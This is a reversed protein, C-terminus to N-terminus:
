LAQQLKRVERFLTKSEGEDSLKILYPTPKGDEIVAFSFHRGPPENGKSDGITMQKFVPTNLLVRYTQHARMIFRGNKQLNPAENSKSITVNLKFTGRGGEKWTTGNWSYLNVRTSSFISEEGEEGTDVDRQQFKDSVEGGEQEKTADGLGEEESETRGDDEEDKAPAGFAVKGGGGWKADGVPAAFSSLKAGGSAQGFGSGFTAPAFTNPTLASSSPGKMGFGPLSASTTAGSSTGQVQDLKEMPVDGPQQNERDKRWLIPKFPAVSDTTKPSPKLNGFPSKSPDPLPPFGATLFNESKPFSENGSKNPSQSIQSLEPEASANRFVDAIPNLAVDGDVAVTSVEMETIPQGNTSTDEVPTADINSTRPLLNPGVEDSSRMAKRIGKTAPIKQERHTDTDLDRSRKRRPSLASDRMDQDLSNAVDLPASKLHNNDPEILDNHHLIQEDVEVVPIKADRRTQSEGELSQGSHVDRSRKRAHGSLEGASQEDLEVGDGETTEFDEFSRKKLSRGRSGVSPEITEKEAVLDEEVQQASMADAQATEMHARPSVLGNKSISAISTKKLKERVPRESTDNDSASDTARHLSSTSIRPSGETVRSQSLSTDQASDQRQFTRTM